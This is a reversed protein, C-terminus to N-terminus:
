TAYRVEELAGRLRECARMARMKLASVSAGTLEAMEEYGLDEVYRLLFAERQEPSLRQLASHIEERWARREMVDDTRPEPFASIDATTFLQDRRARRAGTTRCRNVVIRFLWAGFRAPERCRALSRYARAFADQVADEADDRNGLMQMAYRGLQPRYRAVLTAYAEVDGALVQRVVAAVAADAVDEVIPLGRSDM